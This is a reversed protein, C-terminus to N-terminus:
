RIHTAFFYAFGLLVAMQGLIALYMQRTVGGVAEHIEAKLEGRMAAMEGRVGAIAERLDSRLALLDHKTALVDKAGAIELEIARVIARAQAPAVQAKELVELSEAQMAM